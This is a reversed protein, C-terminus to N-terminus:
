GERVGRFPLECMLFAFFFVSRHLTTNVDHWNEKKSIRQEGSQIIRNDICGPAQVLSQGGGKIIHYEQGIKRKIRGKKRLASSSV